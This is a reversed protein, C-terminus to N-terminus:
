VDERKEVGLTERFARYGDNMDTFRKMICAYNCAQTAIIISM